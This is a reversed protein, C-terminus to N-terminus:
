HHHCHKLQFTDYHEDYEVEDHRRNGFGYPVLDVVHEGCTHPFKQVWREKCHKYYINKRQCRPIRNRIVPTYNPAYSSINGTSSPTTFPYSISSIPPNPNNTQRAPLVPANYRATSTQPAAYASLYNTNSSSTQPTTFVPINTLNPTTQSATYPVPNNSAKYPVAAPPYTLTSAPTCQVPACEDHCHLREMARQLKRFLDKIHFHHHHHHYDRSGDSGGTHPRPQSKPVLSTGIIFLALFIIRNFQLM